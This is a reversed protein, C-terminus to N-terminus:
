AQAARIVFFIAICEACHILTMRRSRGHLRYDLIFARSDNRTVVVGFGPPSGPAADYYFTRDKAPPELRAINRPNLVVKAM